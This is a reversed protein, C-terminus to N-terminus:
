GGQGLRASIKANAAEDGDKLFKAYVRFLVAVSHGAREAVLQPEVGSSLWTSVAAHRLDYPRKALTSVQEAPSLARSRAEAWVEGYGTDQILGGRMTQFVRGDPATGYATLHWRLLAVLEPPIPVRRVAKRPRHKLGKREHAEGSDTWATGSRPRTEHLRLLGWGRRPLDCDGVRLGIVEAPRAAAYYMCGFFAALRRGRMSQDRVAALLKAAQDPNPVCAPDVEEVVQEPAKWKIRDLPNDSLLEADVAFELSNYLIARKRSITGPAATKGDLKKSLASLASRIVLRDSLASMPLSKKKFWDLVKAADAPTEKEWRNKNFAWSYLARRVTNVDPMGKTDKVFAPTVTAMAEALTRRTNGPSDDWKMEIYNRAHEYWSIDQKKDVMSKPLGSDIDFPEGKRAATILQARRSEALGLTLFSEAHGRTGVKWRLQYPKRYDRKRIAWIKVTYSWDTM